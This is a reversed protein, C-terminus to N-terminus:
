LNELAERVVRLKDVTKKCYAMRDDSADVDGGPGSEESRLISMQRLIELSINGIAEKVYDM